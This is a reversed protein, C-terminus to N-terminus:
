YRATELSGVDVWRRWWELERGGEGWGAMPCGTIPTFFKEIGAMTTPWGTTDRALGRRVGVGMSVGVGRTGAKAGVTSGRSWWSWMATSVGVWTDAKEGGKMTTLPETLTRPVKRVLHASTM